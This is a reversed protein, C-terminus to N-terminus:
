GPLAGGERLEDKVLCALEPSGLIDVHGIGSMVIARAWPLRSTDQPAVLNDHASHITTVPIGPGQEGEAHALGRLFDSHPRMQRANAGAGLYALVTGHHPSAITVLRAVDRTGGHALVARAGLGGMSHAVVIVRRGTATAVREIEAALDQEMREIPAFWSRLNPTFIPNVGAAELDRVLHLFCGRNVFYGHALIVAPRDGRAAVPDPRLLRREWPLHVLSLLLFARWESLVMAITAVVGIQQGPARPTHRSWSIAFSACIIALRVGVVLGAVLAGVVPWSVGHRAHMWAGLACYLGLEVAQAILIVRSLM